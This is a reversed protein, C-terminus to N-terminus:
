KVIREKQDRTAFARLSKPLFLKKSLPSNSFALGEKKIGQIFYKEKSTNYFSDMVLLNGPMTESYGSYRISFRMLEQKANYQDAMLMSWSDEDFYFTRSQYIHRMAPKLTGQIVWTRHREYRTLDPNPHLPTLLDKAKEKSLYNRMNENNYSVLMEKKGLIKWDYRDLAGNFLYLEDFVRINESTTLPTDYGVDPARRTRRQSTVYLWSQRPKELPQYTQYVLLAGGTLRAPDVIQMLTYAYVWDPVSSNRNPDMSPLYSISSSQVISYNGEPNVVSELTSVHSSISKWNLYYNWVIEEATKPIPFPIGLKHNILEGKANLKSTGANKQTADTFWQPVHTSRHTPYVPMKFTDPYNEFLAIQGKSLLEGYNKYNTADITYLPKEQEITKTLNNYYKELNSEQKWAPISKDKNGVLLGGLPTLTDDALLPTILFLAALFVLRKISHM